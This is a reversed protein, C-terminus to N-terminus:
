GALVGITATVPVIAIMYSTDSQNFGFPLVLFSVTVILGTFSGFALSLGFLLKMYNSNRLLEKTAIKIDEERKVTATFSPPTPPKDKLFVLILLALM